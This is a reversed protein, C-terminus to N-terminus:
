NKEGYYDDANQCDYRASQKYNNSIDRLYHLNIDRSEGNAAGQERSERNARINM